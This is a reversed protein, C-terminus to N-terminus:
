PALAEFAADIRQLVDGQFGLASHQWLAAAVVGVVTHVQVVTALGTREDQGERELAAAVLARVMTQQVEVSAMALQPHERALRKRLKWVDSEAALECVRATLVERTAIGTSEQAPRERLMTGLRDAIGPDTVSMASERSPFYNFFTRTSVNARAAIADVTVHEPGVELALELAARHLAERTRAKKAERLGTTATATM